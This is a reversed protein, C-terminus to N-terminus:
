MVPNRLTGIGDVTIEILDGPALTFEDPPVIGTGTLLVTPPFLDNDRCLYEILESYPRVMQDTSTEGTFVITGGRRITLTIGMPGPDGEVLLVAPGLACAKRFIKAQPLYLPNEAEIDRCTQDNGPVLGVLQGAHGLVLGLEPEPVQWRSDQRIGVPQNPGVVRGGTAKFFLEPREAHYVRDYITAGGSEAERADRSRKYTVGSAWVEMPELPKLLHPQTRDPPRDLDAYRFGGTRRALPAVERVLAAPHRGERKSAELLHQFSALRGPDAATLNYVWDEEWLGLQAGLTPTHFTVLKM